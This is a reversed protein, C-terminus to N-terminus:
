QGSGQQAQPFPGHGGFLDRGIDQGRRGGDGAGEHLIEARQHFGQEGGEGDRQFGEDGRGNQADGGRDRERLAAGHFAHEIGIGHDQLHRGDDGDRRQDQDPHAEVVDVQRQHDDGGDDRKKGISAPVVSPRFLASKL